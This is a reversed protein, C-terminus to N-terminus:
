YVFGFSGNNEVNEVNEESNIINKPANVVDLERTVMPVIKLLTVEV